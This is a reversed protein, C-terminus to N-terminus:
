KMTVVIRGECHIVIDCSMKELLDAIVQRGDDGAMIFLRIDTGKLVSLM